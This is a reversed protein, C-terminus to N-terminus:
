KVRMFVTANIGILKHAYIVMSISWLATTLLTAVAAGNLGFEPIFIVNLIVNIIASTGLIYAAQKQHGSMSMLYGVSGTLAIILRALALIILATWGSVFGTGFLGMLPKSGIVIALCIPASFLLSGWAVYTLMRQLQQTKGQSYYQAIMPATISNVLVIAFSILQSVRSAASYIGADKTSMYAGVMIIDTQNLLLNFGTILLMPFATVAWMRTQYEHTASLVHRPLTKTILVAMVFMTLITTVLNLLMTAVATAEQEFLYVYLVLFGALLVPRLIVQPVQSLVIRKLAQLYAGQLILIVSFPLLLCAIVFVPVLGSEIQGRLMYVVVFTLVGICVSAGFAMQNARRMYGRLLSWKEGAQYESLFRLAATDLGLKGFFVFLNIWTLAYIYQGFNEVGLVRALLVQLGFALGTGLVNVFFAGGVRRTLVAETANGRYKPLFEAVLSKLRSNM